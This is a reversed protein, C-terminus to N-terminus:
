RKLFKNERKIGTRAYDKKVSIHPWKIDKGKKGAQCIV